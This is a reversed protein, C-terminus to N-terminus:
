GQHFIGSCVFIHPTEFIMKIVTPHWQLATRGRISDDVGVTVNFVEFNDCPAIDAEVHESFPDWVVYLVAAGAICVIMVIVDCSMIVDYFPFM